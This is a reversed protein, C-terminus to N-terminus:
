EKAYFGEVTKVLGVFVIFFAFILVIKTEALVKRICPAREGPTSFIAATSRVSVLTFLIDANCKATVYEGYTKTVNMSM